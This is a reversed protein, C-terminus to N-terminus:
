NQKFFNESSPLNPQCYYWTQATSRGLLVQVVKVVFFLSLPLSVVVLLLSGLTILNAFMGPAEECQASVHSQSQSCVNVNRSFKAQNWLNLFLKKLTWHSEAQHVKKVPTGNATHGPESSKDHEMAPTLHPSALPGRGTQVGEDAEEYECCDWVWVDFLM